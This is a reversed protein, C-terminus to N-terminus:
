GQLEEEDPRAVAFVVEPYGALQLFRRIIAQANEQARELIGRDIADERSREKVEDLQGTLELLGIRGGHERIFYERISSEDADVALVEAAPMQVYIRDRSSRDRSLTLGNDLDIGARIQIDIAFLVARDVTRIGLFRREEGFYVVDRYIYEYTHLQLLSRLQEEVEVIDIRNAPACSFLSLLVFLLLLMQARERRM